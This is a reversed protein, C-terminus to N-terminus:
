SDSSGLNWLLLDPEPAWVRPGPDESKLTQIVKPFVSRLGKRPLPPHQSNQMEGSIAQGVARHWTLFFLLFQDCPFTFDGTVSIFLAKLVGAGAVVSIRNAITMRGPM